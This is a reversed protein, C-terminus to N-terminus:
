TLNLKIFIGAVLMGIFIGVLGRQGQTWFVLYGLPVFLILNNFLHDFDQHFFSSLFIAPLSMLKGSYLALLPSQPAGVVIHLGLLILVIGLAAAIAEKHSWQRFVAQVDKPLQDLPIQKQKLFIM